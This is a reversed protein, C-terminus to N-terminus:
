KLEKLQFRHNQQWLYMLQTILLIPQDGGALDVSNKHIKRAKHAITKNGRYEQIDIKWQLMHRNPAKMNLLSKGSNCDTIVEFANGDLYYHLEELEWVLCLSEMQSRNNLNDKSTVFEDRQLNTMLLKSQIYPWEGDM